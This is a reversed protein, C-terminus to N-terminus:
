GNRMSEATEGTSLHVHNPEDPFIYLINTEKTKAKKIATLLMNKAHQNEFYEIDKMINGRGPSHKSPLNRNLFYNPLGFEHLSKRYPRKFIPINHSSAEFFYPYKFFDHSDARPVRPLGLVFYGKPLNDILAITGEFAENPWGANLRKGQYKDIDVARGQSHLGSSHPRILSIIGLQLTGQKAENVGKILSQLTLLLEIAINIKRDKYTIYGTEAIQELQNRVPGKAPPLKSLIERAISKPFEEYIPAVALKAFTGFSSHKRTIESDVCFLPDPDTNFL